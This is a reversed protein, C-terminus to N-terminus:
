QATRDLCNLSLKVSMLFYVSGPEDSPNAMGDMLLRCPSGLASTFAFYLKFPSGTPAGAQVSDMYSKERLRHGMGTELTARLCERDNGAECSWPVRIRSEYRFSCDGDSFPFSIEYTDSDVSAILRKDIASQFKFLLCKVAM